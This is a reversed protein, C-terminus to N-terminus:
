TVPKVGIETLLMGRIADVNRNQIHADLLELKEAPDSLPRSSKLKNVKPVPTEELTEQETHLREHIREGPRLGVIQIRSDDADRGGNKLRLIQRALNLIKLPEGMDLIYVEGQGALAEAHLILLVAEEITMFYRTADEHTVRLVGQQQWQKEFLPIVSGSSGLVNGFRVCSYGASRVIWEGWAKSAGMIGVAGVVKDTSVHLLRKVGFERALQVVNRTGIVNTRAAELPHAEMMPVHKCAAAHYVVQPAWQEFVSRLDREYRIDCLLCEMAPPPNLQKLQESIEFLATESFDLLLLKEVPLAAIQRCLESGISGGAGTVLVRRGGLATLLPAPDLEVPQRGLFDSMKLERIPNFRLSREPVSSLEPLISVNCGFASGTEFIRGIREPGPHSLAIVVEAIHHKDLHEVLRDPYGLVPYGHINRGQCNVDEDLFGVVNVGTVDAQQLFRLAMEGRDGAGVILVRLREAKGVGSLQRRAESWFRGSFRIATFLAVTLLFDLLLPGNPFSTGQTMFIVPVLLASGLASGYFVSQLDRFSAFRWISRSLGSVDSALGKLLMAGPLSELMMRQYGIAPPD